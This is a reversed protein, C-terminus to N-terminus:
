VGTIDRAKKDAWEAWREAWKAKSLKDGLYQEFCGFLDVKQQLDSYVKWYGTYLFNRGRNNIFGKVDELPLRFLLPNVECYSFDPSQLAHRSCDKKADLILPIRM